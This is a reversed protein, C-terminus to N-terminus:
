AYADREYIKLKVGLGEQLRDRSKDVMLVLRNVVEAYECAAEGRQFAVAAAWSSALGVLQDALGRADPKKPLVRRVAGVCSLPLRRVCDVFGRWWALPPRAIDKRDQGHAFHLWGFLYEMLDGERAILDGMSVLDFEKLFDGRLQYEYRWVEAADSGWVARWRELTGGQEAERVKDYLRFVIDGKGVTLGSFEQGDYHFDRRRARSVLEEQIFEPRGGAADYRLDCRSLRYASMPVRLGLLTFACGDIVGEYDQLEHSLCFVSGGIVFLGMHLGAESPVLFRLGPAADLMYRYGNVGRVSVREDGRALLGECTAICASVQEQSLKVHYHVTDLGYSLIRM